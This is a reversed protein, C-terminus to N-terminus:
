ENNYLVTYGGQEVKVVQEFDQHLLHLYDGQPFFRVCTGCSSSLARPVPTMRAQCGAKQLSRLSMLAAHHTYFTAIHEITM